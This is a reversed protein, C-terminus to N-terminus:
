CSGLPLIGSRSRRSRRSTNRRQRRSGVDFNPQPDNSRNSSNYHSPLRLRHSGTPYRQHVEEQTHTPYNVNVEGSDEIIIDEIIEQIISDALPIRADVVGAAHASPVGGDASTGAPEESMRADGAGEESGGVGEESVGAREASGGAPETLRGAPAASQGAPEASEAADDDQLLDVVDSPEEPISREDDDEANAEPVVTGSADDAADMMHSEVAPESGRGVEPECTLMDEVLRTKLVAKLGDASLGRTMLGERLQAATMKNVAEYAAATALDAEPEASPQRAAEEEELQQTTVEPQTLLFEVFRERLAAKVGDTSLGRLALVERLQAVTMKKVLAVDARGAETGQEAGTVEQPVENTEVVTEQQAADTAHRRPAESRRQSRREANGSAQM